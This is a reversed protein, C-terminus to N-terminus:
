TGSGASWCTPINGDGFWPRSRSGPCFWFRGSSDGWPCSPLAAPPIRAGIGGSLLVPGPIRRIFDPCQRDAVRSFPIREPGIGQGAGLRDDRLLRSGAGVAPSKELCLTGFGLPRGLPWYDLLLLLFPLTVLIPKSMLGLAFFVIVALYRLNFHLPGIRASFAKRSSEDPCLGVHVLDRGYGEQRERVYSVYAGLTLMFFLGSLVDKREAIWAVSEVRLPHVAFLVAALASPWALGTMRWLVLFFLVATAAHLIVNTLHHGGARPWLVPLRAHALDLVVAGLQRCPMRHLGLCGGWGDPRRRGVPERVRM